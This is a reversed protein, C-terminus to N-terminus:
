PKTTVDIQATSFSNQKIKGDTDIVPNGLYHTAEVVRTNVPSCKVYMEKAESETIEKMDFDETCLAISDTIDRESGSIYGLYIGDLVCVGGELKAPLKKIYPQEGYKNGTPKGDKDLNDKWNLKYTVYKM